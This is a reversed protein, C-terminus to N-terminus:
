AVAAIAADEAAKYAHMKEASGLDKWWARWTRRVDNQLERPVEGWCPLCM